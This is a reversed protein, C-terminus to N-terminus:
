IEERWRLFATVLGNGGAGVKEAAITLTEGHHINVDLNFLDINIHGTPEILFGLLLEGSPETPSSGQTDLEVSSRNGDIPAFAGSTLASNRILKVAVEKNTSNHASILEAFVEKESELGNFIRSNKITMVNQINNDVLNYSGSAAAHFDNYSPPRPGNSFAGLSGV